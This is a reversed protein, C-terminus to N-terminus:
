AGSGANAALLVVGVTRTPPSAVAVLRELGVFGANVVSVTTKLAVTALVLVAAPVADGVPETLRESPLVRSAEAGKVGPAEPPLTARREAVRELGPM